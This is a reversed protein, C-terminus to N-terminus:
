SAPTIDRFLEDLVPSMPYDAIRSGLAVGSIPFALPVAPLDEALEEAAEQYLERRTEEDEESRADRILRRVVASDYRFEQSQEAFLPGLFAHPSRYGGNRGLLHMARDEDDLLTGLYDDEWRVPRPRLTIGAATLSQAISAFVAEPQPLYSRTARLPYYFSLPEGDYSSRQILRRARQRDYGYSQADESAVALAPPVFQQASQSGSLFHKECLQGRNIAHAIGERLDGDQLAPHELNFGLYVISFPDRQLILRGSQVLTQLSDATIYDYVDLTGRQLERLRDFSRPISRVTVAPLAPADGWYAPFAELRTTDDEHSVLRYAGTGAADRSILGPDEDDLTAASAIGFGPHTLAELLFVLPEKLTIAVSYDDEADVSDLLCESSDAYGGFVSVFALATRRKLHAEGYLSNLRSWRDINQAVVEATLSTGDHFEVGRRITFTYTLGDESASWSTALLPVTDGSERDVGVLPEFVQRSIRQTETDEALAPDLQSAQSVASIVFPEAEEASAPPAAEARGAPSKGALGSVAAVGAVAVGASGLVARRRVLRASTAPQGAPGPEGASASMGAPGRHDARLRHSSM